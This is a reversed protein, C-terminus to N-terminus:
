NPPPAQVLTLRAEGIPEGNRLVDLRYNGPQPFTLGDVRFTEFMTAPRGDKGPPIPFQGEIGLLEKGDEDMLVLKINAMQGSEFPDFEFEVCIYFTPHTLPFHLGGITDFMGILSGKGGDIRCAYDCFKLLGIRM